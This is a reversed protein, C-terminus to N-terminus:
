KEDVKAPADKHRWVRAVRGSESGTIVEDTWRYDTIWTTSEGKERGHLLEAVTWLENHHDGYQFLNLDTRPM